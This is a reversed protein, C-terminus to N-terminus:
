INSRFKSNIYSIIDAYDDFSLSNIKQLLEKDRKSIVESGGITQVNDGQIDVANIHNNSMSQSNQTRGLLYDVSVNLYDAIKAINDAKPMSTKFNTLTNKGLGIESFMTSISISKEKAVYRIRDAIESSKYTEVM